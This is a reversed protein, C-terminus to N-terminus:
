MESRAFILMSEGRSVNAGEHDRDRERPATPLAALSLVAGSRRARSPPSSARVREGRVLRSALVLDAAGVAIFAATKLVRSPM